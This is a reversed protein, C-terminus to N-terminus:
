PPAHFYVDDLPLLDVNSGDRRMYMGRLLHLNGNADPVEDRVYTLSLSIVQSGQLPAIETPDSVADHNGDVWLRLRGWIHDAVSIVGDGNGGNELRDYAQLAVFGDGATEGSPLLTGVGFLERGNDVRHDNDIDIWLFADDSGRALWTITEPVGDGTLDFSVPDDSGSTAIGDGALDLVLPSCADPGTCNNQNPDISGGGGNQETPTTWHQDVADCEDTHVYRSDTGSPRPSMIHTDNCDSDKLGLVHGLEHAITKDLPSCSSGDKRFNYVHVTGGGVQNQSNLQPDFYGCGQVNVPEGGDPRDGVVVSINFRNGTTSSTFSAFGSGSDACGNWMSRAANLSTSSCGTCTVGISGGNNTPYLYGTCSQANARPIWVVVATLLVPLLGRRNM